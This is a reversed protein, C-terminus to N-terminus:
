CFRARRLECPRLLVRFHRILLLFSGLPDGAGGVARGTRPRPRRTDESRRGSLQRASRGLRTCSPKTQGTLRVQVMRDPHGTSASIYARYPDLTTSPDRPYHPTTWGPCGSLIIRTYGPLRPTPCFVVSELPRAPGETNLFLRKYHHNPTDWFGGAPLDQNTPLSSSSQLRAPSNAVRVVQLDSRVFLPRCNATLFATPYKLETRARQKLAVVEEFVSVYQSMPRPLNFVHASRDKRSSERQGM